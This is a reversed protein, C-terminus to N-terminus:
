YELAENQDSLNVNIKIKQHKKIDSFINFTEEKDIPHDFM